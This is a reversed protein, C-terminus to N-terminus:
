AGRMRARLRVELRHLRETMRASDRRLKEVEQVLDGLSDQSQALAPGQGTGTMLWVLSVNTMGALMSVRNARPEARDEEWARITRPKVGMRRALEEVDLGAAERAGTLRDGFTTTAPDFWDANAEPADDM